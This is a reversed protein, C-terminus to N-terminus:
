ALRASRSCISRTSRPPSITASPAPASSASATPTPMPSSAKIAFAALAARLEQTQALGPGEGDLRAVLGQVRPDRGAQELAMTLEILTPPQPLGLSGLPRRRRMEPIEERLDLTVIM